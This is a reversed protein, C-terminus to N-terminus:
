GEKKHCDDCKAPMTKGAAAEKTHCDYCVGTKEATNHFARRLTTTVPATAPTTHCASCKENEKTAPKEPKSEHHCSVCEAAQAHKAHTFTVAGREAKYVVTEPGTEAQAALRGPLAAAVCVLALFAIRSKLM